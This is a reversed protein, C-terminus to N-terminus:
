QYMRWATYLSNVLVSATVGFLFADAVVVQVIREPHQDLNAWRRVLKGALFCIVLIALRM